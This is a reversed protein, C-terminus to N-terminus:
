GSKGACGSPVSIDETFMRKSPGHALPKSPDLSKGTTANLFFNIADMAFKPMQWGLGTDIWAEITGRKCGFAQNPAVVAAGGFRVTAFVGANFGFGGIGVMSRIGFALDLSTIGLSLGAAANGVSKVASFNSPTAVSWGGSATRGAWIFGSFNYQGEDVMITSKASFGSNLNFFTAFTLSLPFPGGLPISIDIPVFHQLHFNIVKDVASHGDVRLKLGAAGVISIGASDVGDKNFSLVCRVTPAEMAIFGAATAGMGNGKPVYYYQVGVYSNNEVNEIRVDDNHLNVQPLPGTVKTPGPDIKPIEPAHPVGQPMGPIGPAQRKRLNALERDAAEFNLRAWRPLHRRAGASRADIRARQTMATPVWQGHSSTSVLVGPEHLGGGLMATQRLSSSDNAGPYDPAVYSIMKDPDIKQEMVFRGRQILDELAVPGLIASVTSGNPKLMLVRGVARGTAFVIKGVQFDSVQPANADFTWTMGDGAVSKIAKDGQEMVIVNPQYDVNPSRKPAVGFQIQSPTMTKPDLATLVVTGPTIVPNEIWAPPPPGGASTDPVLGPSGPSSPAAPPTPAPAPALATPPTHASQEAPTKKCGVPFALSLVLLAALSRRTLSSSNM